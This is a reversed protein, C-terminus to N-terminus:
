AAALRPHGWFHRRQQVTQPRVAIGPRYREITEKGAGLSRANSKGKAALAEVFRSVLPATVVHRIEVTAGSLPPSPSVVSDDVDLVSNQQALISAQQLQTANRTANGADDAVSLLRCVLEM